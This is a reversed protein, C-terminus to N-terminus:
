TASEEESNKALQVRKCEPFQKIFWDHVYKYPNAQVKSLAEVKEMQDLMAKAEAEKTFSAAIYERMHKYTLNKYKSAAKKEVEAKQFQFGPLDRRLQLMEHYEKTGLTSAKRLFSASLTVTCNEFSIEYNKM